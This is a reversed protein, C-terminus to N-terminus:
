SHPIIPLLMEQKAFAKAEEETAFHDGQVVWGDVTTVYSSVFPPVDREVERSRKKNELERYAPNVVSTRTTYKAPRPAYCCGNLGRFEDSVHSSLGVRASDVFVNKKSFRNAMGHDYGYVDVAHFGGVYVNPLARRLHWKLFPFTVSRGGGNSVLVARTLAPGKRPCSYAKGTKFTVVTTGQLEEGVELRIFESDESYRVFEDTYGGPTANHLKIVDLVTDLQEDTDFPIVYSQYGM